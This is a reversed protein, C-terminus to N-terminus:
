FDSNRNQGRSIAELIHGEVVFRKMLTVEEFSDDPESNYHKACYQFILEKLELFKVIPSIGKGLVTIVTKDNEYFILLVLM